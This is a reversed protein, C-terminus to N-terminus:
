DDDGDGDRGEVEARPAGDVCRGHVEIERRGRSLVVEAEEAGSREARAGWGQAPRVTFDIPRGPRCVVTVAGGGTGVSRSRAPALSTFVPTSVATPAPRPTVAPVTAGTPRPDEPALPARADVPQLARVERGASDIAFWAGGAAVGVCGLWVAVALAWRTWRAAADGSGRRQRM